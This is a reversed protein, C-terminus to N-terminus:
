GYHNPEDDDREKVSKGLFLLSLIGIEMSFNSFILAFPTFTYYLGTILGGSASLADIYSYATRRIKLTKDYLQIKGIYM